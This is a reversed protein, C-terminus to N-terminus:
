VDAVAVSPSRGVCRVNIKYHEGESKHLLALIVVLVEAVTLSPLRDAFHANTTM